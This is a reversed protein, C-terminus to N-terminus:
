TLENWSAVVWVLAGLLCVITTAILLATFAVAIM